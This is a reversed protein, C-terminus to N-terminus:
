VEIPATSAAIQLMEAVVYPDANACPRRDELYGCHAKTVHAPIRISAGRDCSGVKFDKISCTEHLGTLRQDIDSGYNQIHIEHRDRLSKVIRNIEQIGGDPNRTASTSFNTHMGAGNWDGQVPKPHLSVSVGKDAEETTRFLLWRAVWLQDCIEVVSSKQAEQLSRPGIQFEWQGPMVEANMGYYWLGAELCYFMHDEAIKRGFARNGGVGCYYPGQPDPMEIAPEGPRAMAVQKNPWGYPRKNQTLTYEQEFGISAGDIASAITRQRSSSSHPTGDTNLVECMVIATNWQFPSDTIPDKCAFVPKLVLDSNSGDAQNTSSGDFGWDPFDKHDSFSSKGPLCKIKSRIMPTHEDGDIWLYTAIIGSM